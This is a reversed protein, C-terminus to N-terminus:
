RVAVAYPSLPYTIAQKDWTFLFNLVPVRAKEGSHDKLSASSDGESM